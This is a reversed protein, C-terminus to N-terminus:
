QARRQRMPVARQALNLLERLGAEVEQTLHLRVARRKRHSLSRFDGLAQAQKLIGFTYPEDPISLDHPDDATIQIFIGNDGGGKHLQGTSHLFRPGYGLTTAIRLADRLHVRLAQLLEHHAASPEIYAMLALYDGPRALNLFGGLWDALAAKSKKAKTPKESASAVEADSYLRIGKEDIVAKPQPLRGTSRFEELLQKTNDKSEQVNPQDFANIGLWAGAVATAMEWLFFEEGLDLPDSMVSRLVPHGARELAQLKSEVAGDPSSRLRIHVFVRDNGYVEPGGLPESEVPLLGKGDKGTSEAILQEIWGGLSQIEPSTVFTVKDRHEKALEGLIAGLRAGPNDAVPVCAASAHVVREARDLLTKVDLGMIAGPVMGFYSLASYRGGIDAPNLFVRRFTQERAIKELPTGPDTIAVFNEGARDGKLAKVKEFFYKYFCLVETTTGSKSSVIFMTKAPDIPREINLIAAPDTSDLVFLKPYGNVRGFTLRFVDPCLSSGGMGLLMAYEFGDGRVRDAFAKLDDSQGLMADTVTLWGLANSIINQHEPESKWVSADKRWIRRILQQKEMRELAAKVKEEYPGLAASQRELIGSVIADRKAELVEMLTGFSEAFSKVGEDLLQQTVQALDIGAKALQTLQQQAGQVDEELSARLRGHDRFATFTAPPVTNVTDPGILEEVYMVDRYNPNKTSTSAWLPRQARAGQRKLRLFREGGFIKKFRQYALKANAIAAKGLLSQLLTKEQSDTSRRIRFELTNDVATDIRSVFFSAVSAVRDLPGGAQQWRELGAIYAEAVKEYTDQSFILTVNVHIGAGILQEIAPLGEPTAPVKIMVNKRDIRAFLRKAEEVTGQTDRALRPSVELSVYGDVGKTQEFISRFLDAAMQIDQIVLAEYIESVRKGQDTLERMQQDYDTSGGIAKEFITPNSTVGRLGDQEIKMRIDGTELLARRINDYWISQGYKQIEILPNGM